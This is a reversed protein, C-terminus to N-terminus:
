CYHICVILDEWENPKNFWLRHQFLDTSISSETQINAFYSHHTRVDGGLKVRLVLYEHLSVDDMMEGFLTNRTKLNGFIMLM